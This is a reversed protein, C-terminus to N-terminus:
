FKQKGTVDLEATNHHCSIQHSEFAKFWDYLPYTQEPLNGEVQGQSSEVQM